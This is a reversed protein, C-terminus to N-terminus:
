KHGSFKHKEKGILRTGQPYRVITCIKTQVLPFLEQNFPSDEHLRGLGLHLETNQWDM